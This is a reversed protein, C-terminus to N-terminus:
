PRAGDLVEQLLPRDANRPENGVLTKLTALARSTGLAALAKCGAVRVGTPEATTIFRGRRRVAEELPEIASADGIQALTEAARIRLKEPMRRDNLFQGLLPVASAARIQGFAFMIELLTEPDSGPFAAALAPAAAPGGLKWVARVAARKVRGDPHKLCAQAPELAGVDGMDALLNLTNRVLYWKDSDLSAHVAPMALDGLGRIVEMLRGRRKRDQEEGLVEVLLEGARAGAAELFPIFETMLTEPTATHLLELVRKLAAPQALREKLWALAEFRWPERNELFQCLGDLEQVLLLAQGPEGREILGTLAAGFAERTAHHISAMPEWGFHAALGQFFPGECEAPIGPTHLWDAVGALTRAAMERRPAFDSSLAKVLQDLVQAFAEARGEELLERLFDLRQNQSLKFLHEREQVLRLQEDLGLTEWDMRAVLEQLNALGLGRRRLEQELGSLLAQFATSGQLIGHLRERLAEWGAGEGAGDAILDTAAKGFGEPALAFLGMRLGAPSAPLSDLGGVVSLIDDAPLDLLAARLAEMQQATPFGEGLGVSALSQALPSLDAGGGEGPGGEAKAKELLERFERAWQETLVEVPDPGPEPAGAQARPEPAPAEAPVTLPNMAPGTGDDEGGEGERVERYQTQGLRIHELRKDALVKAAGGREEIRPPKLTFLDLLEGVEEPTVGRSFIVGSIQREALLRATSALHLSQGDFPQGDVFMRGNSAAIHFTPKEALWGEINATLAELAAQSRPHAATYMALGKIAMQLTQAFELFDSM